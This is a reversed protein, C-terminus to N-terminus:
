SLLTFAPPFYSVGAGESVSEWYSRVYRQRVADRNELEELTDAEHRHHTAVFDPNPGQDARSPGDALKISDRFLKLKHEDLERGKGSDIRKKEAVALDAIAKPTAVGLVKEM